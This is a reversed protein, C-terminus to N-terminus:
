DEPCTLVMGWTRNDATWVLIAGGPTPAMSVDNFARSRVLVDGEETSDASVKKIRLEQPSRPRKESPRAFVVYDSQCIHSTALPAPDLGNPFLQWSPEKSEGGGASIELKALGFGNFDKQTPLFALTEGQELGIAHIETLDHSGPGIWVIENPELLIRRPTVRVVRSHVPSMSTRGELVVLRPHPTGDVLAVSTAQHGEASADLIEPGNQGPSAWIYAFSRDEIQAIFAVVDRKSSTQVSTRTAPRARDFLTETKLTELSARKLQGGRSAFYVHTPSVSPGWGYKSFADAPQSIPEFGTRGKRQALLVEDSRTIFVAGKPTASVSAAPGLDVLEGPGWRTTIEAYQESEQRVEDVFPKPSPPPAPVAKPEASPENKKAEQRDQTPSASSPAVGSGGSKKQPTRCAVFLLPWVLVFWPVLRKKMSGDEHHRNSSM